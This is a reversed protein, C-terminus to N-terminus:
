SEKYQNRTIPSLTADWCNTYDHVELEVVAYDKKVSHVHLNIEDIYDFIYKIDGCISEGEWEFVYDGEINVDCSKLDNFPPEDFYDTM